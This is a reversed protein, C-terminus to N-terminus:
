SAIYRQMLSQGKEEATQSEQDVLTAKKQFYRSLVKKATGWQVETYKSAIASEVELLMREREQMSSSENELMEGMLVDVSLRNATPDSQFSTKTM